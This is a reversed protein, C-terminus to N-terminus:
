FLDQLTLKIKETQGDRLVRFTYETGAKERLLKQLTVIAPIHKIDINNISKIIDGELFGAEAAPSDPSVFVIEPFGNDAPGIQLGSKDAPFSKNFDRGKEIIIQQREYDLYIVFHRLLSNGINGISESGSNSGNSKEYPINILPNTITFDGLQITKFQSTREFHKGGLGTSVRDIGKMDQFNNKNAFPFHFSVDFAGLDLRWKGSYKEDVTMIINFTRDQLLPANIVCGKGNYTFTDPNYFSIKQNSYDVRTVFRSLFDYGLIGVVDPEYFRDALGQFSFITQTNFRLGEVQFLPLKVFSLEFTKEIGFGNIRGEPKLGLSSAYDFDIVSMSAGNDLLWYRKEGNITLPIFINNEIFLFPIDESSEGKLFQYDRVDEEPPEFLSTNIKINVDYRSLHVIKKKNRPLIDTEEYFPHKVGNVDRYDSFLSHIQIDPQKIISKILFFDITSFYDLYIDDNITNITKIVYCDTEKVKQVDEFTLTFIKSDPNLHEFNELYKTIKRRKLTEEDRYIQIKGNTDVMWSFKGNDGFTQNFIGFNEESRYHLPKGSWLKYTGDLGDFTIRGGLYVTKEAKIKKLGGIANYYKSFVEHPDVPNELAACDVRLLLLFLLATTTQLLFKM